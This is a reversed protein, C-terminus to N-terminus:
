AWDCSIDEILGLALIRFLFWHVREKELICIPGVSMDMCMRCTMKAYIGHSMKLLFEFYNFTWSWDCSIDEIVGLALITFLFWHQSAKKLFSIPGISMDMCMRCSIKAWICHRMKLLFEFYNFTWAWDCWIDETLGLALIRFVFWHVRAKKLISIPGVSMDMCMRCTM